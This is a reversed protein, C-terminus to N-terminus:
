QADNHAYRAQLAKVAKVYHMTEPFPPIRGGYEIVRTPGANYAALALDLQGFRNRQEQLYTLGVRINTKPDYLERESVGYDLATEPMVQMVGLAGKRSIADPTFGSEHHAVALALSAPVGIERAYRKIQQKIEMVQASDNGTKAEPATRAKRLEIPADPSNLIEEVERMADWVANEQDKSLKLPAAESKNLNALEEAAEDFAQTTRDKPMEETAADALPSGAPVAQTEDQVGQDTAAMARVSAETNAAEEPAQITASVPEATPTEALAPQDNEGHARGIQIMVTEAIKGLAHEVAHRSDPTSAAFWLSVMITLTIIYKM